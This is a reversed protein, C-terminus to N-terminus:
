TVRHSRPRRVTVSSHWWSHWRDLGREQHIAAADRSRRRAQRRSSELSTITSWAGESSRTSWYGSQFGACLSPATDARPCSRARRSLGSGRRPPLDTSIDARPAREPCGSRRTTVAAPDAGRAARAVSHPGSHPTTIAMGATEDGPDPERDGASGVGLDGGVLNPLQSHREQGLTPSVDLDGTRAAAVHHSTTSPLVRQNTAQEGIHHGIGGAGESALGTSGPRGGTARADRLGPPECALCWFEARGGIAGPEGQRRATAASRNSSSLLAARDSESIAGARRARPHGSNV